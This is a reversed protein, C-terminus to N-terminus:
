AVPCVQTAFAGWGPGKLGVWGEPSRKPPDTELYAPDDRDLIPRAELGHSAEDINQLKDKSALEEMLRKVFVENDVGSYPQPWQM